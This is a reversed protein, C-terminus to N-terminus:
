GGPRERRGGDDMPRGEMPRAERPRLAQARPSMRLFEDRTLVGDHNKDYDNFRATFEAVFEARSITNDVNRDFDLRYPPANEGGLATQAWTQYELPSLAGDGNTDARTFERAAGAALEAQDVRLDDNKDFTAFVLADASLLVQPTERMAPGPPARGGSACAAAAAALGFAAARAAWQLASMFGEQESAM